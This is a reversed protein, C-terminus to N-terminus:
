KLSRDRWKQDLKGSIHLSSPSSWPELVQTGAVQMLARFQTGPEQNQSPGVQNNPLSYTSISFIINNPSFFVPETLNLFSDQLWIAIFHRLQSFLWSTILRRWRKSSVAGAVMQVYMEEGRLTFMDHRQKELLLYVCACHEFKVLIKKSRQTLESLFFPYWMRNLSWQKTRTQLSNIFFNTINM